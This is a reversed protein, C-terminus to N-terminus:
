NELRFVIPVEVAAAVAISGRRAPEFRWNAVTDLAARDLRDSGSSHSVAVGTVRGSEGVQVLLLVTGQEGMRRAALPYRPPPNALYAADSSAASTRSEVPVVMSAEIEAPAQLAIQPPAQEPDPEPEGQRPPLPETGRRVSASDAAPVTSHPPPLTPTRLSAPRAEAPARPAPQPASIPAPRPPAESRPPPMPAAVVPQPVAAPVLVAIMMPRSDAEPRARWGVGAIAAIAALHCVAVAALAASRGLRTKWARRRRNRDAM